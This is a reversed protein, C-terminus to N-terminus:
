DELENSYIYAILIVQLGQLGCCVGPLLGKMASFHYGLPSKQILLEHELEREITSKEYKKM